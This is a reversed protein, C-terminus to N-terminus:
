SVPLDDDDKSSLWYRGHFLEREAAARHKRQGALASSLEAVLQHWETIMMGIFAALGPARRRAVDILAGLPMAIRNGQNEIDLELSEGLQMIACGTPMSKRRAFRLASQQRLFLGGTWGEADRVVWFGHRNQCIYFLPIAESLVQLNPRRPFDRSCEAAQESDVAVLRMAAATPVREVIADKSFVDHKSLANM